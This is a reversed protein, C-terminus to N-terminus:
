RTIRAVEAKIYDIGKRIRKSQEPSWAATGVELCAEWVAVAEELRATGGERVGWVQLAEGLNDQTRAWQLPV